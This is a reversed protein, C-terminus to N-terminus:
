RNVENTLCIKQVVASSGAPWSITIEHDGLALSLPAEDSASERWVYGKEKPLAVTGADTGDVSVRLTAAADSSEARVLLRYDDDFPAVITFTASGANGEPSTVAHWAYGEIVALTLGGTLAADAADAAPYVYTDRRPADATVISVDDLYMLVDDQPERTMTSVAIYLADYYDPVEFEAELMQWEGARTMDYETLQVGGQTVGKSRFAVRPKPAPIGEGLRDVRLWLQVRYQEGPELWVIEWPPGCSYWTVIYEGQGQIAGSAMAAGAGTHVVDATHEFQLQSRVRWGSLDEEFDPNPVNGPLRRRGPDLAIRALEDIYEAFNGPFKAVECMALPAACIPYGLSKGSSAGQTALMATAFATRTINMLREDGSYNAAFALGNAMIMASSKTVGTEPCSTYRFGSDEPEWMTDVIFNAIKVIRQAVEEDGTADYFYKLATMMVGAMFGAEGYHKEECNCHGGGLKHIWLGYKEDGMEQVVEYILRMANLYYEDGTSFYTSMAIIGMWGPVRANGYGFNVTDPGALWDGLQMASRHVQEDGTLLWYELNGQNWMHGENEAYGQAYISMNMYDYPYYGGTHGMCHVWAQGVRRSQGPGAKQGAAHHVVDVDANHRAAREAERFFRPDATRFYQTFLGHQLDYEINGWNNGREGWWDGFNMLGYWHRTERVEACADVGHDLTDDYMAFEARDDPAIEHLAGSDTYWEHPASVVLPANVRALLEEASAADSPGMLMEHRKQFGSRFTYVGDRIYYYLIHEDPRNAYRDSPAIAPYLSVAIGHDDADLAKPWQQWFDRAAVTLGGRTILGPARAGTAEGLEFADDAHQFLREGDALEVMGEDTAVLAPDQVDADGWWLDLSAFSKMEDGYEMDASVIDHKLIHDVRVFPDGAYCYYRLEFGFYPDGAENVHHGSVLIVTRRHNDEEIFVSEVKRLLGEGDTTTLVSFPGGAVAEDGYYLVALEGAKPVEFRAPGTNVQWTDGTDTVMTNRKIMPARVGTGVTLELTKTENADLTVNGSILLWKITRDPWRVLARTAVPISMGGDTLACMAPSGIMGQPLPIGFTV